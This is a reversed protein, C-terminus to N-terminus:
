DAYNDEQYPTRDEIVKKFLYKAHKENPDLDRDDLVEVRIMFDDISIYQALHNINFNGELIPPMSLSVFRVLIKRVAIDGGNHIQSSLWQKPKEIGKERWRNLLYNLHEDDLLDGSMAYEEIYEWSLENIRRSANENILLENSIKQKNMERSRNISEVVKAVSYTNSAGKIAQFLLDGRVYQSDEQELIHRIILEAYKWPMLDQRNEGFDDDGIDALASMLPVADSPSIKPKYYNLRNLMTGLLERENLADFEEELAERNNSFKLLRKIEEPSIDGESLRFLFYREIIEPHCARSDRYWNERHSFEVSHEENLDQTCPFLKEIIERVKSQDSKRAKMVLAEVVEKINEAADNREKEELFTLHFYSESLHKYVDPEFLRLIELTLFDTLNVDLIGSERFRNIHFNSASLFRKSARLNHLFYQLTEKYLFCFRYWESEPEEIKSEAEEFEEFWSKVKKLVFDDIKCQEIKPLDFGVHVIKELYDKGMGKPIGDPGSELGKEVIDRQLLLLFILNPFDANSKVLQLVLRLEQPTLRDIDDIVVLLPNSIDMMLDHMEQRAKELGQHKIAENTTSVKQLIEVAMQSCKLVVASEPSILSGAQYILDLSVAAYGWWQSALNSHDGHKNELTLGIGKFFAGAIQEQNGWQWPNFEIINPASAEHDELADLIMNKFSTKGNGWQAYIGVVLSDEEKWGRISDALAEAFKVRGLIDDKRRRIARDSLFLHGQDATHSQETDTM